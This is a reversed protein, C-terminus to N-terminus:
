FDEDEQFLIINSLENYGGVFTSDKFVIPVTRQNNTKEALEDMTETKKDTVDYYVYQIKNKDLLEKAKTCFPCNQSGYIIYM